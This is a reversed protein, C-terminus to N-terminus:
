IINEPKHKCNENHWRGVARKHGVYDCYTCKRMDKNLIEDAVSNADVEDDGHLDGETLRLSEKHLDFFIYKGINGGGRNKSIKMRIKHNDQQDPLLIGVFDATMSIKMSESANDLDANENNFGSRNTQCASIVPCGFQKSLERLEVAVQGYKDYSGDSKGGNPVMLTLYDIIIVDFKGRRKQLKKLYAGIDRSSMTDAPFEKIHFDVPNRNMKEVLLDINQDLYNVNLGTHHAVLRDEYMDESMELSIFVVNKKEHSLNLGINSLFLSKGSHTQGQFLMLYKNDIPIGGMILEDFRDYGIPLKRDPNKLKEVYKSFGDKIDRGLDEDMQDLEIIKDTKNAIDAIVNSINKPNSLEEVNTFLMEYVINNKILEVFEDHLFDTEYNSLDIGDIPRLAAKIEEANQSDRQGPESLKQALMKVVELTPLKDYKKFYMKIYNFISVYGVDDFLQKINVENKLVLNIYKEDELLLKTVISNNM